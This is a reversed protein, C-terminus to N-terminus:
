LVRTLVIRNELAYGAGSPAQTRDNLVTFQGADNRVLDAAYLHIWKEKPLPVGHVTRLFGPNAFLLEPPLLGAAVCRAPGYLDALLADLLRARQVLGNAVTQWESNSLVLPLLDLNWPRALGNPDGYINHTIGNERIIRRAQDWRSAVEANGL